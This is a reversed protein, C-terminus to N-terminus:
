EVYDASLILFQYFNLELKYNPWVFIWSVLSYDVYVASVLLELNKRRGWGWWCLFQCLTLNWRWIMPFVGCLVFVYWWEHLMIRGVSMSFFRMSVVGISALFLFMVSLWCWARSFPFCITFVRLPLLYQACFNLAVHSTVFILISIMFGTLSNPCGTKEKLHVHSTACWLLFINYANLPFKPTSISDWFPLGRYSPESNWSMM